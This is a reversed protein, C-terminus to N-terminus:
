RDPTSPEDGYDYNLFTTRLGWGMEQERHIFSVGNAKYHRMLKEVSAIGATGSEAM